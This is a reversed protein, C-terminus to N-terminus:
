RVAATLGRAKTTRHRDDKGDSCANEAAEIKTVTELVGYDQAFASRGSSGWEYGKAIMRRPQLCFLINYLDDAYGGLLTGTLGVIRNACSALAGLANGQATDGALQHLEDCVAYDFFRQMYRAIFDVPAVRPIKENDAQWLPAFRPRCPKEGLESVMETIRVKEFDDATLRGEDTLIPAGSVPNVVCGRYRGSSPM